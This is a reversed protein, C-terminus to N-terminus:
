GCMSRALEEEWVVRLMPEEEGSVAHESCGTSTRGEPLELKYELVPELYPDETDTEEGLGEGPWTSFLGTLRLRQGGKGGPADRVKGRICASRTLRKTGPHTM